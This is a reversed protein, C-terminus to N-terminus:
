QTVCVSAEAIVVDGAPSTVAGKHMILADSYVAFREQCQVNTVGSGDTPGCTHVTVV